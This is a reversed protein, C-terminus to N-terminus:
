YSYTIQSLIASISLLSDDITLFMLTGGAGFLEVLGTTTFVIGHNMFYLVFILFIWIIDVFHWYFLSIIAGTNREKSFNGYQLRMYNIILLLLGILVHMGHFGTLMYFLSSFVSDNIAYRLEVYETFQILLFIIGFLISFFSSKITHYYDGIKLSYYSKNCFFGSVILVLLGLLPLELLRVREMGIPISLHDTFETLNFIRDFYAWFLGAFLMIESILFLFFGCVLTARIKVNYKGFYVSEIIIEYVWGFIGYLFLIVIIIKGFYLLSLYLYYIGSGYITSYTFSIIFNFLLFLCIAFFHRIIDFEGNKNILNFKIYDSMACYTGFYNWYNLNYNYLGREQGLSLNEWKGHYWYPRYFMRQIVHRFIRIDFRTITNRTIIHSISLYIFIIIFILYFTVYKSNLMFYFPDMAYIDNWLIFAMSYISFVFIMFIQIVHFQHMDGMDHMEWWNPVFNNSEYGWDPWNENMWLPNDMTNFPNYEPHDEIHQEFNINNIKAMPKWVKYRHEWGYIYRIGKITANEMYVFDFLDNHLYCVELFVYLLIIHLMNFQPLSIQIIESSVIEEMFLFFIGLIGILSACIYLMWPTFLIDNFYHTYLTTKTNKYYTIVHAKDLLNVFWNNTKGNNLYKILYKNLFLAKLNLLTKFTNINFFKGHEKYKNSKFFKKLKFLTVSTNLLNM